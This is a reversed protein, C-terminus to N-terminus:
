SVLLALAMQHAIIVWWNTSPMCESPPLLWMTISRLKGGWSEASTFQCWNRWYIWGCSHDCNKWAAFLGYCCPLFLQLLYLSITFCFQCYWYCSLGSVNNNVEFCVRDPIAPLSAWVHVCSRELGLEEGMERIATEVLSNDEKDKKGGPFSFLLQWSLVPLVM